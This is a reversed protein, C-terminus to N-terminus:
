LNKIKLNDSTVDSREVGLYLLLVVSDLFLSLFNTSSSTSYIFSAHNKINKIWMNVYRNMDLVTEKTYPYYTLCFFVHKYGKVRHNWLSDCIISSLYEYLIFKETLKIIIKKTFTWLITLELSNQIDFLSFCRINRLSCM